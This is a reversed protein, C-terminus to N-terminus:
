GGEKRKEDKQKLIELLKRELLDIINGNGHIKENMNSLVDYLQIYQSQTLYSQITEAEQQQRRREEEAKLERKKRKLKEKEDHDM